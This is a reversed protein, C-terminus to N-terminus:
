SVAVIKDFAARTDAVARAVSFTSEIRQRAATGLRHRLPPDNALRRLARALAGVDGPPVVLGSEGDIVLEASGGTDTVIPTVAYAMSEIVSKPLGERKLAPLVSFDSAALVAPADDRFGLLRVQPSLGRRQLEGSLTVADMGTGILVLKLNPLDSLQAMADLLVSVGKRPRNNAVCTVLTDTAAVDLSVRSSPADTYWALDHGKYVTFVRQSRWVHPRLSEAVAEAVAIIADVRPHLHTLYASPDYARINGTQGRYTVVKIPLRFAALNATTIAKNNFSYVLDYAGSQLYRRLTRISQRDVKGSPEFDVVNVGGQAMREAYVSDTQTYVTVDLGSAVLGIFLEAEPRVSNLTDRHSTVCAIRM